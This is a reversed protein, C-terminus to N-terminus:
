IKKLESLFLESANEYTYYDLIEKSDSVTGSLIDKLSVDTNFPDIYYASSKFIEPLSASRSVIIKTGTSLAELPPIGFGEYYSPFIFANCKIMLAKVESDSIYGLLIVNPLEKIMSLEQPILSNITAGSIAFYENQHKCAYDVIWKLNKRKSLSGLTFFFHNKL